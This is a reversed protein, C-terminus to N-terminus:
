RAAQGNPWDCASDYARAIATEMALFQTLLQPDFQRHMHTMTALVERHTCGSKYARPARLADYVDALCVIRAALPIAAGELGFPYGSGDWREHHCLAVNQAVATGAIPAILAAGNQTHCLLRARENGTLPRPQNLLAAPITLKGVDHLLGAASLQDLMPISHGLRHAFLASLRAVRHCHQHTEPHHLALRDLLGARDGPTNTPTASTM